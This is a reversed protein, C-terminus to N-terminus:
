KLALHASQPVYKEAFDLAHIVVVCRKLATSTVRSWNAINTVHAIVNVMLAPDLVHNRILSVNIISSYFFFLLIIICQMYFM